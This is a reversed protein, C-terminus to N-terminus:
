TKKHLNANLSLFSPAAQNPQCLCVSPCIKNLGLQSIVTHLTYAGHNKVDESTTSIYGPAAAVVRNKASQIRYCVNTM